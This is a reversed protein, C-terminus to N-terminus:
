SGTSLVRQALTAEALPGRWGHQGNGGPPGQLRARGQVQARSWQRNAVPHPGLQDLASRPADIHQTIHISNEFNITAHTCCTRSM